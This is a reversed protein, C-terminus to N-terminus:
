AARRGAAEEDAIGVAANVLALHTLAQPFNGLFDGTRPDVEESYLGLDNALGVLEDMLAHARDFRGAHALAEVLWFSCTLFAGEAGGVGDDGLYRYVYPGKRLEREITDITSRMRDSKPDGYGLLPLTLLGADPERLDTARVYTGLKEDWGETEIFERL